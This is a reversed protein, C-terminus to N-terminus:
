PVACCRPLHDGCMAEPCAASIGDEEGSSLRPRTRRTWASGSRSSQCTPGALSHSSRPPYPLLLSRLPRRLLLPASRECCDYLSAPRDQVELTGRRRRVRRRPGHGRCAAGWRTGDCQAIGRRRRRWAGGGRGRASRSRPRRALPHRAGPHVGEGPPAAGVWTPSGRRDPRVRRALASQAQRAKAVLVSWPLPQDTVAVTRLVSLVDDHVANAARREAEEAALAADQAAMQQSFRDADADARRAGAGAGARMFRPAALDGAPHWAGTGLVMLLLPVPVVLRHSWAAWAAAAPVAMVYAAQELFPSGPAALIRSALVLVVTSAALLDLDRQSPPRRFAAGGAQGAAPEAAPERGPQRAQGAGECGVEGQVGVPACGADRFEHVGCPGDEEVEGVARAEVLGGSVPLMADVDAGGFGIVPWGVGEQDASRVDGPASMGNAAFM